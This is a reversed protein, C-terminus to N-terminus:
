ECAFEDPVPYPDVLGSAAFAERRDICTGCTGCPRKGGKYCSWTVEFPVGLEVGRRVIDAKTWRVFPALVQLPQWDCLKSARDM